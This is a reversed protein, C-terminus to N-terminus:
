DFAEPKKASFFIFGGRVDCDFDVLGCEGCLEALDRKNWQRFGRPGGVRGAVIEQIERLAADVAQQTADDELYRRDDM